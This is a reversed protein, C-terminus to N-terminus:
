RMVETFICKPRVLIVNALNAYLKGTTLEIVTGSEHFFVLGRALMPQMKEKFANLIHIGEEVIKDPWPM